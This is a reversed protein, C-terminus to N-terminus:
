LHFFKLLSIVLTNIALGSDLSQEVSRSLSPIALGTAWSPLELLVELPKSSVLSSIFLLSSSIELLLMSVSLTSSGFLGISLITTPNFTDGLKGNIINGAAYTGMFVTDMTAMVIPDFGGVNPDKLKTKITSYSKRSFHAMM